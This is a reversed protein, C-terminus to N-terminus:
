RGDNAVAATYFKGVPGLDTERPCKSQHDIISVCAGVAEFSVAFTFHACITGM